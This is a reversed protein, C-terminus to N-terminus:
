TRHEVPADYWRNLVTATLLSVASFIGVGLLTSALVASFLEAMKLQDKTLLILYGLGYRRGGYGAFFEGVIAGVVSLGCATKAGTCLGPIASPLRLKWLVHWRSANNLRFYDLLDPDIGMLGATGNAIIPFLSIIFATLVVSQFGRGCWHVILPAIAVIPVTQLFIAYPYGSGRIWRSQSFVFAILTGAVLSSLFGLGAAAGTYGAAQSLKGFNQIISQLVLWPSPLLIPKIEWHAVTGQWVAVVLLFLMVPPVVQDLFHWLWRKV